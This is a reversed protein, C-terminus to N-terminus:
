RSSNKPKLHLFFNTPKNASRMKQKKNTNSNTNTKEQSISKTSFRPFTARNLKSTPKLTHKDVSYCFVTTLNNKPNSNSLRFFHYGQSFQGSKSMMAKVSEREGHGWLGRKVRGLKLKGEDIKWHILPM